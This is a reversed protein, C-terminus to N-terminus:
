SYSGMLGVFDEQIGTLEAFLDIKDKGPGVRRLYDDITPKKGERWEVEFQECLQHVLDSIPEDDISKGLNRPDPVNSLPM